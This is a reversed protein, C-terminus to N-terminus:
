KGRQTLEVTYTFDTWATTEAVKLRFMRPVIPRAGSGEGAPVDPDLILERTTVGVAGTTAWTGAETWTVTGSGNAVAVGPTGGDDQIIENDEFDAYSVRVLSLTGTAGGDADAIIIGNARSNVGTVKAGVNFNATQADYDLDLQKNILQVVDATFTGATLNEVVVAVEAFDGDIPFDIDAPAADIGTQIDLITTRKYSDAM